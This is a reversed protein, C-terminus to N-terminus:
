IDDLIGAQNSRITGCAEFGKDCMDRFLALSTYFKDMYVHYGKNKLRDDDLLDLVVRNGLGLSYTLRERQWHIIELEVCGNAADALVCAKM